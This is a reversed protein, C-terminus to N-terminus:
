MSCSGSPYPGNESEFAEEKWGPIAHRHVRACITLAARAHFGGGLFSAVEFFRDTRAFFALLCFFTCTVLPIPGGVVTRSSPVDVIIVATRRWGESRHQYDCRRCKWRLPSAVAAVARSAAASASASAAASASSSEEGNYGGNNDSV